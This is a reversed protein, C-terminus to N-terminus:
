CVKSFLSFIFSPECLWKTLSLKWTLIFDRTTVNYQMRYEVKLLINKQCKSTQKQTSVGGVMGGDSLPLCQSINSTM